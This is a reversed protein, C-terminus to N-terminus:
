PGEALLADVSHKAILLRSSGGATLKTARLRGVALLRHVSRPSCQLLASAEKVTLRDGAPASAPAAAALAEAVGTAVAGRVLETLQDPTLVVVTPVATV